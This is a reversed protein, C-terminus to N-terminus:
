EARAIPELPRPRVWKTAAVHAGTVFKAAVAASFFCHSVQLRLRDKVGAIPVVVGRGLLDARLKKINKRLSPTQVNRVESGATVVFGEPGHYGRAWIGCYDLKLTPEGEPPLTMPLDIEVAEGANQDDDSAAQIAAQAPLQSARNANLIRCGADFLLRRGDTVLREMTAAQEVPWPLVRPEGTNALAVLGAEKAFGFLRHELYLRASWELTHPEQEHLLFAEAAFAKAPDEAHDAICKLARNSEGIFAEGQGAIVYCASLDRTAALSRAMALPFATVVLRGAPDRIQRYGDIGGLPRYITHTCPQVQITETPFKM